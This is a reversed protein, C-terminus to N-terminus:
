DDGHTNRELGSLPARSLPVELQELPPVVSEHSRAWGDRAALKRFDVDGVSSRVLDHPTFTASRLLRETLCSTTMSAQRELSAFCDRNTAHTGCDIGLPRPNRSFIPCFRRAVALREPRRWLLAGSRAKSYPALEIREVHHLIAHM